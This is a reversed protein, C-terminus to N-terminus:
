CEFFNFQILHKDQNQEIFDDLKMLFVQQGEQYFIFDIDNFIRHFIKSKINVKQLYITKIIEQTDFNIYDIARNVKNKGYSYEVLLRNRHGLMIIQVVAFEVKIRNKVEEESHNAYYDQEEDVEEEFRLPFSKSKIRGEIKSYDSENHNELIWRYESPLPNIIKKDDPKANNQEELIPAGNENEEHKTEKKIEVPSSIDPYSQIELLPQQIQSAKPSLM